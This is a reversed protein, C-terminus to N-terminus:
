FPRFGPSPFRPMTYLNYLPMAYAIVILVLAIVTWLLFRDWIGARAPPELPEAFELRPASTPRGALATGIVVV